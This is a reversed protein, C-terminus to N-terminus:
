CARGAKVLLCPSSCGRSRAGSPQAGAHVDEALPAGPAMAGSAESPPDAAAPVHRLRGQRGVTPVPSPSPSVFHQLAFLFIYTYM